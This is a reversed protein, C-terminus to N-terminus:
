PRRSRREASVKPLWAVISYMGKAENRKKVPNERQVEICHM